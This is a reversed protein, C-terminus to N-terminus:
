CSWALFWWGSVRGHMGVALLAEAVVGCVSVVHTAISLLSRYLHHQVQLPVM